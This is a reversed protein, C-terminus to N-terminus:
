RITFIKRRIRMLRPRQRLPVALSVRLFHAPLEGPLFNGGGAPVAPGTQVAKGGPIVAEYLGGAGALPVRRAAAEAFVPASRWGQEAIQVIDRWEVVVQREYEAIQIRYLIENEKTFQLLLNFLAAQNQTLHIYGAELNGASCEKAVSRLLPLITIDRTSEGKVPKAQYRLGIM